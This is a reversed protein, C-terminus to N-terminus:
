DIDELEVLIRQNKYKGNKRKEVKRRYAPASYYRVTNEKINLNKAIERITGISLCEDGRYLAYIKM